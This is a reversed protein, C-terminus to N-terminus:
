QRGFEDQHHTATQIQSRLEAIEPSDPIETTTEFRFVTGPPVDVPSYVYVTGNGNIPTLVLTWQKDGSRLDNFLSRQVTFEITLNM